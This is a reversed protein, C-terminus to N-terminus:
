EGVIMIKKSINLGKKNSINLIYMGTSIPQAINVFNQHEARKTYVLKGSLDFIAVQVHGHKLLEPCFIVSGNQMPNPFICDLQQVEDAHVFSHHFRWFQDCSNLPIWGDLVWQVVEFRTLNFLSDYSNQTQFFNDWQAGNWTLDTKKTVNGNANYNRLFRDKNLWSSDPNNWLQHTETTLNDSPDYEKLIHSSQDWATAGANWVETVKEVELSPDDVDYIYVERSINQYDGNQFLQFLTLAIQGEPTVGYVTRFIDKWLLNTTDWEEHELLQIYGEQNYTIKQQYVNRWNNTPSHWKQNLIATYNGFENPTNITKEGNVWASNAASWAQRKIEVLNLDGDYVNTVFENNQWTGTLPDYIQNYLELVEGVDDIFALNYQRFTPVDEQLGIDYLYCYISDVIYFGEEQVVVFGKDNKYFDSLHVQEWPTNQSFCFLPLLLAFLFYTRNM